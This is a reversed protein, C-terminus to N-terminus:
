RERRDLVLRMESVVNSLATGTFEGDRAGPGKLGSPTVDEHIASLLYSEPGTLYSARPKKM